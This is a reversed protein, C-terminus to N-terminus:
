RKKQKARDVSSRVQKSFLADWKEKNSPPLKQGAQMLESVAQKLKNVADQDNDAIILNDINLLMKNGFKTKFYLDIEIFEKINLEDM